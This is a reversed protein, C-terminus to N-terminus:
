IHILSLDNPTTRNLDAVVGIGLRLGNYTGVPINSFSLKQGQEATEVTQSIDKFEILKIDGLLTGANGEQTLTLYSTYFQFDTFSISTSDEYLYSDGMVFPEGDYTAIIHIALDTTTGIGLVPEKTCGAISCIFLILTPIILRM